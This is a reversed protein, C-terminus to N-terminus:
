QSILKYLKIAKITSHSKQEPVLNEKIIRVCIQKWLGRKLSCYNVIILYSKIISCPETVLACRIRYFFINTSKHKGMDAVLLNIMHRWTGDTLTKTKDYEHLVKEGGPKSQLIDRVM